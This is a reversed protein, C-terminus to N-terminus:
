AILQLSRIKHIQAMHLAGSNDEFAKCHVRPPIYTGVFRRDYIEQILNMIPIVEQLAQSLAYYESERSSLAICSQLKSAWVISCGCLFIIYGTRSKATSPDSPSTNKNYNGIFDADANLIIIFMGLM